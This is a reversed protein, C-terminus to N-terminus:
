PRPVRYVGSHPRAEPAGTFRIRVFRIPPNSRAGNQRICTVLVRALEVVTVTNGLDTKGRQEDLVQAARSLDVDVRMTDVGIIPIGRAPTSGSRHVGIKKWTRSDSRDEVTVKVGLRSAVNQDRSEPDESVLHGGSQVVCNATAVYWIESGPSPSGGAFAAFTVRHVTLGGEPQFFPQDVEVFGLESTRSVQALLLLLGIAGVAGRMM